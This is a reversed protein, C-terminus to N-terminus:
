GVLAAQQTLGRFTNVLFIKNPLLLNPLILPSFDLVTYFYASSFLAGPVLVPSSTEPLTLHEYLVTLFHLFNHELFARTHPPEPTYHWLPSNATTLKLRTCLPELAYLALLIKSGLSKM